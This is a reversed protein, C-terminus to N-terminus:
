RKILCIRRLGILDDILFPSHFYETEEWLAYAPEREASVDLHQLTLLRLEDGANLAICAAASHLFRSPGAARVSSHHAADSACSGRTGRLVGLPHVLHHRPSPLYMVSGRAVTVLRRATCLRLLTALWGSWRKALHESQRGTNRYLPLAGISIDGM